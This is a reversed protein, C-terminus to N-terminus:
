TIRKMFSAQIQTYGRRAYTQTVGAPSSSLAGMHMLTARNLTAWRELETFLRLSDYTRRHQQSMFWFLETAMRERKNFYLPQIQAATTGRVEGNFEAVLVIANEDALLSAILERVTDECYTSIPAFSSTSHFERGLEIIRDIDFWDAKRVM